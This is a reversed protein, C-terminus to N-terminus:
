RKILKAIFFGDMYEDPFITLYGEKSYHFNDGSPLDIKVAKFEKNEKLFWNINDENEKKNLTCTSYILMGGKKVYKSGNSLIDRQIGILEKLDENKWKIEPKKRIIGIGSCPVDMLVRDGVNTLSLNFERADGKQVTVNEIGLRSCSRKILKLKSTYIDFAYVKGINKLLEGIETTKGGPASCLDLVTIDGSLDMVTGVLMASEDQVTILGERFLPNAEIGKGKIISISYPSFKGKEINYGNEILLSSAEEVTTKLTNVRVNVVPIKNLGEMIKLADEEGYGKIFNKVSYPNFSYKFAIEDIKNEFKIDEKDRLYSRLVGNVLKSYKLSVKKGENVAENLVAFDPVKDLYLLQYISIRLLCLIYPNIGKIDKIYKSLIIDITYKYKITGYVIETLLGKDLPSLDSAKLTTDLAINSYAGENLVRDVIKAAEERVNEM